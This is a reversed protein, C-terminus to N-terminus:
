RRGPARGARPAPATQGGDGRRGGDDRKGHNGAEAHVAAPADGGAGAGRGDAAGPAAIAPRLPQRQHGAGPRRPAADAVGEGAPLRSGAGLLGAARDPQDGGGAPHVQGTPDARAAPTGLAGTGGGRVIARTRLSVIPQYHLVLEGDEIARRLEGELELREMAQETMSEDFVAYGAKGTGKARYMAIDADRLLGTPSQAGTGFTIGISTTVIRDRQGLRIPRALRAAIREAVAVAKGEEGGALELLVAFEDGGIRAVTDTVPVCATLREAVTMLLEDGVTHGLSDNVVKFNDLDLYLVAVEGARQGARALARELRDMLLSRNPLGTLADHFAQHALEEEFAKRETIDRCTAVIGGVGPEHSLNQLIAEVPHYTGDGHRLRLETKVTQGSARQAQAFASRACALDDPHAFDFIIQGEADAPDHGGTQQIGPSVYGMRGEADLILITDSANRILARFREESRAVAEEARLRETVDRVLIQTATRGQYTTPIGVVEVDVVGGDLRVFKEHLLDTQLGQQEIQRIRRAAIEHYDPHILDLLRRGLLEETRSAGFLAVGAANVYVLRGACHVAIVEPSSEVLRRYREESEHLAEEAQKRETVDQATGIMATVRGAGDVDFEGRLHLWRIDGDRVIRHYLTYPERKEQAARVTRQILAYDDPHVRKLYARHSPTVEGPSLGLIQFLEESWTATKNALDLHWNGVHAIRQANNLQQESHRMRAQARELEGLTRGTHRSMLLGILGSFLAIFAQVTWGVLIAHRATELEAQQSQRQYDEMAAILTNDIGIELRDRAPVIQEQYLNQAQRGQGAKTLHQAQDELAVCVLNRQFVQTAAAALDTNHPLLALRTQLDAFANKRSENAVWTLEFATQDGSYVYADTYSAMDHSAIAVDKASSISDAIVQQVRDSNRIYTQMARVANSYGALGLGIILCFALALKYGIKLNAFRHM